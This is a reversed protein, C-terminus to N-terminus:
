DSSLAEEEVDIGEQVVDHPAHAEELPEIAWGIIAALSIVLGVVIMAKAWMAEHYIV